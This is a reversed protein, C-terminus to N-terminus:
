GVGAMGGDLKMAFHLGVALVHHVLERLRRAARDQEGGFNAALPQIKLEAADEYVPIKGPVRHLDLLPDATDVPNALSRFRDVNDVQDRFVRDLLLDVTPEVQSQPDDLLRKAVELWDKALDNAVDLENQGIWLKGNLLSGRPEVLRDQGRFLSFRLGLLKLTLGRSKDRM